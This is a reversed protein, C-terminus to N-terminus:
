NAPDVMQRLKSLASKEIQRIRQRSLGLRQPLDDREMPPHSESVGFQAAIVDRERPNLAALLQRVEERVDLDAAPQRSPDPVQAMARDDAQAMRSGQQLQPAARAFGKMLALTAYTSFRNGKHT